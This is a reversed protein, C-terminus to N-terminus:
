DEAALHSLDASEQPKVCCASTIEDERYSIVVVRPAIVWFIATRLEYITVSM